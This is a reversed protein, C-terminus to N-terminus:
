DSRENAYVHEFMSEGTSVTRDSAPPRGRYVGAIGGVFAYLYVLVVGAAELTNAFLAPVLYAGVVAIITAGRYGDATSRRRQYLSFGLRLISVFIGLFAILGIVGLEAFASLFSNHASYVNGLESAYVERLNNYGIGIFPHQAGEATAIRWREIRWEITTGTLIREGIVRDPIFSGFGYVIFGILPVVMLAVGAAGLRNTPRLLRYALLSFVWAGLLLGVWSGRSWTLFVIVPALMLVSWCVVESVMGKRSRLSQDGVATLLMSFFGVALVYYYSTGSDFPGKLRYLLGPYSVREIFGIIILYLALYGFAWILHSLKKEDGVLRRAIYYAAFPIIFADTAVRLSYLLRQSQLLINVILIASFAVMWRETRDLDLPNKRKVLAKLLFVALFVAFLVRTPELLERMTVGQSTGEWWGSSHIQREASSETYPEFFPNASGTIANTAIPAVLLWIVLVLFGRRSIQFLLLPIWIVACIILLGTLM